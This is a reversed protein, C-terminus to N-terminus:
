PYKLEILLIEFSNKAKLYETLRNIPISGCIAFDGSGDIMSELGDALLRNTYGILVPHKKNAM